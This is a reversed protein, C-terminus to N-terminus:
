RGAEMLAHSEIARDFEDWGLHTADIHHSLARPEVVIPIELEHCNHCFAVDDEVSFTRGAGDQLTVPAFPERGLEQEIHAFVSRQVLLAGAGVCDARFPEDRPFTAAPRM